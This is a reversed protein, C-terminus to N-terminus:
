SVVSFWTVIVSEAVATRAGRKGGIEIVQTVEAFTDLPLVSRSVGSAWNESRFEAVPNPLRSAEPVALRAAEVRARTSALGPSEAMARALADALTFPAAPQGAAPQVGALALAVGVVGTLLVRTASM